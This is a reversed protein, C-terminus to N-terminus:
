GPPIIPTVTLVLGNRSAVSVQDGVAAGSDCHAAWIEGDLRVQGDPDCPSVVVADRGVLTQAGVVHRRGRVTRNWFLIEVVGLALAIGFGIVNWPSSLVFLLIVALVILV